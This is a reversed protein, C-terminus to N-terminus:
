YYYYCYYKNPPGKHKLFNSTSSPTCSLQCFAQRVHVPSQTGDEAGCLGLCFPVCSCDWCWSTSAPPDSKLTMALHTTLQLGEQDM